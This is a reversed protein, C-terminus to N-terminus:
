IIYQSTLKPAEQTTASEPSESGELRLNKVRLSIRGLKFVTGKEIIIEKDNNFDHLLRRFQHSSNSKVIYWLKDMQGDYETKKSCDAVLFEGVSLLGIVM